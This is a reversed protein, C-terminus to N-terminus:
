SRRGLTVLHAYEAMGYRRIFSEPGAQRTLSITQQEVTRAGDRGMAGAVREALAPEDSLRACTSCYGNCPTTEGYRDAVYRPGFTRIARLMPSVSTRARVEPWGDVAAHGLRLHAPAGSHAIDDNGCAVITGDFAILPWAARTCPDPGVPGPDAPLSQKLWAAARGAAAVQNVLIPVREDFIRRIEATREALYSDNPGLGVLHFSLDKGDSLLTDFVRYVDDRRVEREHFVDLSASFHDLSDIARRIAPPIRRESAWFMGSLAMTRCGVESARDAMRKLLVPRLFAEGGSILMLEPHDDARFSAVFRDFWEAPAQESSRTSETGCHACSLPCRRTLGILIGAGPEGRLEL